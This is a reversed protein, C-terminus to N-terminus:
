ANGYRIRPDLVGYAVDAALNGVVTAAGIILTAALLVPYDKSTASQLFLLGLGQYSFVSEAIVAGAVINPFTLGVLTVIPLCSNRLVHRSLVLREPLGKARVVRLFDETLVDIASSRMYRSFGALNSLTLTVIPLVLGAPDALMGGVSATQPAQSPLLHLQVSFLAILLFALFFDPMTYLTFSTADLLYDSPRNRKVAQYIGMPIAILLALVTSVGLLLVDGPLRQAILTAVPEQTTFSIGLNGRVIQGVYDFFQQYLPKNLGYTANFAAIRAATARPGIAARAASGPVLHIIIFTLIMVGIVVVIAQAARRALYRTM